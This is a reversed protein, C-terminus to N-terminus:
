EDGGAARTKGDAARRCKEDLLDPPEPPDEPITMSNECACRVVGTYIVQGGDGRPLVRGVPAAAWGTGQCAKCSKRPKGM